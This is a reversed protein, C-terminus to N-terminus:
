IEVVYRYNKNRPKISGKQGPRCKFVDVVNFNKDLFIITLPIKTKEMTFAHDVDSNYTFIMGWGRPLSNLPSLGLRKKQLTDAVWLKYKKGKIPTTIKRYKKYIKFANHLVSERM